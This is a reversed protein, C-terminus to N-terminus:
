SASTFGRHTDTTCNLDSDFVIHGRRHTWCGFSVAVGITATHRVSYEINVGLVSNRGGLGQPGIGIANIGDELLKEMAAAKENSNHSGVPRLLAQKSLLASTEISGAIGVGVYLPPCANVGYSTIRDMVFRVVGEYGEGPMLVMAHGPLSCGGGALYTYISCDDRDPIVDWFLAPAGTGANDGTNCEDFPEVANSRLPTDATAKIVAERLISGLENILPFRSGCEIRFQVLGTDQCSPRNLESALRMNEFMMDYVQLAAPDDESARLKELRSVVDDPLHVATHGIFGAMIDTMKRIKYEASM